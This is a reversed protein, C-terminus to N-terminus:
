NAKDDDGDGQYAYCEAKSDFFKAVRNISMCCWLGNKRKITLSGSRRAQIVRGHGYSSIGEQPFAVWKGLANALAAPDVITTKPFVYDWSEYGKGNWIEMRSPKLWATTGADMGSIKYAKNMKKVKGEPVYEFGERKSNRAICKSLSTTFFVFIIRGFREPNINFLLNRRSSETLHTADAIITDAKSERIQAYYLDIVEKEHLFYHDPNGDWLNKRIDDRSVIQVTTNPYTERLWKAKNKAWTSKGSATPGCLIYLNM